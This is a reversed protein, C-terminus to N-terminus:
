RSGRLDVCTDSPVTGDGPSAHVVVERLCLSFLQRGIRLNGIVTGSRAVASTGDSAGTCHSAATCRGASPTSWVEWPMTAMQSKLIGKRVISIERGRMFGVSRLEAQAM